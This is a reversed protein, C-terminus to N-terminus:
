ICSVAPSRRWRVVTIVVDALTLAGALILSMGVFWGVVEVAYACATWDPADGRGSLPPWLVALILVTAAWAPERMFLTTLIVRKAARLRAVSGSSSHIAAALVSSTRSAAVSASGTSAVGGTGISAATAGNLQRARVVQRLTRVASSPPPAAGQAAAAEGAARRQKHKRSRSAEQVWGWLLEVAAPGLALGLFTWELLTGVVIPLLLTRRGPLSTPILYSASLSESSSFLPSLLAYLMLVVVVVYGLQDLARSVIAAAPQHDYGAVAWDTGEAAGELRTLPARNWRRCAHPRITGDAMATIINLLSSGIKLARCVIFPLFFLAVSNDTALALAGLGVCCLSFLVADNRTDTTVVDVVSALWGWSLHLTSPITLPFAVPRQRQPPAM